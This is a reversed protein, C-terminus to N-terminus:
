KGAMRAALISQIEKRAKAVGAKAEASVDLKDATDAINLLKELVPTSCDKWKVPDTDHSPSTGYWEKPRYDFLSQVLAERVEDDEITAQMLRKYLRVVAPHDRVPILISHLWGMKDYKDYGNSLMRKEILACSEDTAMRAFAEVALNAGNKPTGQEDVWHLLVKSPQHVEGAAYILADM